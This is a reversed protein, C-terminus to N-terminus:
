VVISCVTCEQRSCWEVNLRVDPYCKLHANFFGESKAYFSFPRSKLSTPTLATVRHILLREKCLKANDNLDTCTLLLLMEGLLGSYLSYHVVTMM